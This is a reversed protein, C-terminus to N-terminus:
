GESGFTRRTSSGLANSLTRRPRRRGANGGRRAANRHALRPPPTAARMRASSWPGALPAAAAGEAPCLSFLDQPLCGPVENGGTIGAEADRQRYAQRRRPLLVPHQRAPEAPGRAAEARGPPRAKAEANSCRTSWSRIASCPTGMRSLRPSDINSGASDFNSGASDINGRASDFKGRASDFQKSKM